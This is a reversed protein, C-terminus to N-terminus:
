YNCRESNNCNREYRMNYGLMLVEIESMFYNIMPVFVRQKSEMMDYKKLHRLSIQELENIGSIQFYLFNFNVICRLQHIFCGCTKNTNYRINVM